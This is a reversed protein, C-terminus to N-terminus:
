VEKTLFLGSMLPSKKAQPFGGLPQRELHKHQYANGQHFYICKHM